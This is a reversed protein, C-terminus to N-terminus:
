GPMLQCTFLRGCEAECNGEADGQVNEPISVVVNTLM